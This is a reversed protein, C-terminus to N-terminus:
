NAPTTEKCQNATEVLRLPRYNIDVTRCGKPGDLISPYSRVASFHCSNNHHSEANRQRRRIDRFDREIERKRLQRKDLGPCASVTISCCVKNRLKSYQLNSRGIQALAILKYKISCWFVVLGNDKSSSSNSGHFSHSTPSDFTCQTLTSSYVYFRLSIHRSGRGTSRKTTM